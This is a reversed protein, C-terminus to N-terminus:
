KGQDDNVASLIYEQLSLDIVEFNILLLSIM